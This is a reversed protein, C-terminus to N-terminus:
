IHVITYIYAQPLSMACQHCERPLIKLMKYGFVNLVFSNRINKILENSEPCVSKMFFVRVFMAVFLKEKLMVFGATSIMAEM